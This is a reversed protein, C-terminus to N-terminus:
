LILFVLLYYEEELFTGKRFLHAYKQFLAYIQCIEEM